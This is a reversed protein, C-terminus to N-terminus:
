TGSTARGSRRLDKTLMGSVDRASLNRSADRDSPTGIRLLGCSWESWVHTSKERVLRPWCDTVLYPDGTCSMYRVYTESAVWNPARSSMGFLLSTHCSTLDLRV